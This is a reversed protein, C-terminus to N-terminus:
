LLNHFEGCMLDSQTVCLHSHAAAGWPWNISSHRDLELSGTKKRLYIRLMSEVHGLTNISSM